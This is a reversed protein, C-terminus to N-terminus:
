DQVTKVMRVPKKIDVIEKSIRISMSLAEPYIGFVKFKVENWLYSIPVSCQGVKGYRRLFDFGIINKDYYVLHRIFEGFNDIHISSKDQFRIECRKEFDLGQLAKGLLKFMKGRDTEVVCTNAFELKDLEMRLEDQATLTDRFTARIQSENKIEMMNDKKDL